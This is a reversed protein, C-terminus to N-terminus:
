KIEVEYVRVAEKLVLTFVKGAHSRTAGQKLLSQTLLFWESDTLFDKVVAPKRETKLEVRTTKVLPM